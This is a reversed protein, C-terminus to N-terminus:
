ASVDLNRGSQPDLTASQILALAQEGQENIVDNGLKLVRVNYEAAFAANSIGGAASIGSMKHVEM